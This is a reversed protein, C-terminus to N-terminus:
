PLTSDDESDGSETPTGSTENLTKNSTENEGDSGTAVEKVKDVTEEVANKVKEVTEDVAKKVPNTTKDVEDVEDVTENVQGVTDEVTETTNNVGVRDLTENVQGPNDVPLDPAGQASTSNNLLSSVGCDAAKQVPDNTPEPVDSAVRAGTAVSVGNPTNLKPLAQLWHMNIVLTCHLDLTTCIGGVPESLDGLTQILANDGNSYLAIWKANLTPLDIRTEKGPNTNWIKTNHHTSSEITVKYVNEHVKEVCTQGNGSTVIHEVKHTWTEDSDKGHDAAGTSAGMAIGIVVLLAVTFTTIRYKM